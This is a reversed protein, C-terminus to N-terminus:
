HIKHCLRYGVFVANNFDGSSLQQVVGEISGQVPIAVGIENTWSSIRTADYAIKGFANYMFWVMCMAFMKNIFRQNPHNQVNQRAM